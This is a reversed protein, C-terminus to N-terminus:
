VIDNCLYVVFYLAFPLCITSCISCLHIHLSFCLKCLVIILQFNLLGCMVTSCYRKTRLSPRPDTAAPPFRIPADAGPPVSFPAAHPPAFIHFESIQGSRAFQWKYQLCHYKKCVRIDGLVIGTKPGYGWSDTSWSEM